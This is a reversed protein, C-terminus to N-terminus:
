NIYHLLVNEGDHVIVCLDDDSPCNESENQHDRLYGSGCECECECLRCESLLFIVGRELLVLVIGQFGYVRYYGGVFPSQLLRRGLECLGRM